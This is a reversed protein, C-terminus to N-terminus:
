AMAGLCGAQAAVRSFVVVSIHEVKRNTAEEGSGIKGYVM